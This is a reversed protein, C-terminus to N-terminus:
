VRRLVLSFLLFWPFLGVWCLCSRIDAGQIVIIVRFEFAQVSTYYICYHGPYYTEVGAWCVLGAPRLVVASSFCLLFGTSQSKHIHYFDTFLFHILGTFFDSFTFLCSFPIFTVTWPKFTSIYDIFLFWVSPPRSIFFKPIHIPVESALRALLVSSISSLIESISPVISSSSVRTLSFTLDLFNQWLIDLFDPVSHFSWIQSFYFYLFSFGIDFACFINEFIIM